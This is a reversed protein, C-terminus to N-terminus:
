RRTPARAGAGGEVDRGATAVDGPAEALRPELDDAAIGSGPHLRVDDAPGLVQREVVAAEVEDDRPDGRVVEVVHLLRDGLHRADGRSRHQDDVVREHALVDLLGLLEAVGRM